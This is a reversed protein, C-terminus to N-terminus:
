FTEIAPCDWCKLQWERGEAIVASVYGSAPAIERLLWRQAENSDGRTELLVAPEGPVLTVDFLNLPMSLGEGKAKIYAEKRTWCHFFAEDQQNRPLARLTKVEFPSFFQEPIREDALGHRIREIDVGVSRSESVALLALGESHSLNFRIDKPKFNGALEPKGYNSYVFRLQASEQGMYRALIARMFVRAAIFHNRDKDFHFREARRLEDEALTHMFTSISPEPLWLSFRWIHVEDQRLEPPEPPPLWIQTM